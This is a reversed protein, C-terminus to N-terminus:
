HNITKKLRHFEKPPQQQPHFTPQHNLQDFLDKSFSFIFFEHLFECDGVGQNIELLLRYFFPFVVQKNPNM